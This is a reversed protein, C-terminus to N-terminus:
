HDGWAHQQRVKEMMCEPRQPQESVGQRRTVELAKRSPSRWGAPITVHELVEFFQQEVQDTRLYRGRYLYGDGGVL